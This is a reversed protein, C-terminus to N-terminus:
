GGAYLENLCQSVSKVLLLVAERESDELRKGYRAEFKDPHWRRLEAQLARRRTLADTVGRDLVHAAVEELTFSEGRSTLAAPAVRAPWPDEM